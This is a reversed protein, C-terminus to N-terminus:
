YGGPMRSIAKSATPRGSPVLLCYSFNPTRDLEVKIPEQSYTLRGARAVITRHLTDLEEFLWVCHKVINPRPTIDACISEKVFRSFEIQRKHVVESV